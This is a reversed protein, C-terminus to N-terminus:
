YVEGASITTTGSAVIAYIASGGTITIGSGVSNALLIGNSMSMSSSSSLRAATTGEQIVTVEKRGVRAAVILTASTGVTLPGTTGFNSYTETTNVNGSVPVPNSTNAASGNVFIPSNFTTPWNTVNAQTVVNGSTVVVNSTTPWNTVNAQTVVNGSTVVVNSTTPWNVIAAQASINGSTVTVAGISIAGIDFSDIIGGTSNAILVVEAISFNSNSYSQNAFNFQAM